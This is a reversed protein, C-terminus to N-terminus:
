TSSLLCMFPKPESFLYCVPVLVFPIVQFCQELTSNNVTLPPLGQAKLFHVWAGCYAKAQLISMGEPPGLNQKAKIAYGGIGRGLKGFASYCDVKGLKVWTLPEETGLTGLPWAVVPKGSLNHQWGFDIVAHDLYDAKVDPPLSSVQVDKM